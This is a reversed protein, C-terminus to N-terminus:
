EGEDKERLKPSIFPMLRDRVIMPNDGVQIALVGELVMQKVLIEDSSRNKLKGSIPLFVMNAMISGYLTTLLAIAMAPGITSPDEMTRLMQVLGILTGIMGMAPAFAGMVSFIEAGLEHRQETKSIERSMIREVTEPEQGDIALMIGRELFKDGVNQIDNELSLIGEKRAQRALTVMTDMMEIRDSARSLFANKVVAFVSVVEKLPFNILTAGVTGGLVILISQVNVFSQPSGGMVIVVIVMAFCGIIGVITAIDM